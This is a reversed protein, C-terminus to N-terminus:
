FATMCLPKAATVFAREVEEVYSLDTIEALRYDLLSTFKVAGMLMSSFEAIDMDVAVDFSGKSLDDIEGDVLHVVVSGANDPFFSDHLNLKLSLSVGGFNHKVLQELIKRTNLVRYMVGVGSIHCEHYVSRFVHDSDNDFEGLLFHFDDDPTNIVVRNVQDLQARLFSLMEGLADPSEYILQDVIMDNNLWNRSCGTDFRYTLFGELRDDREYGILRVNPQYEFLRLWTLDPEEIMGTHRDAFRSYCQSIALVDNTDLYRVHSKPGGPLAIPRLRYQHMKAGLGFGMQRYFDPRFPWLIAMSAGMAYYHNLYSAMLEKAVHEKKRTLKVAVAGVGGTPVKVGHVNMNFSHLRMAGILESDAFAGYLTIRRDKLAHGLREVARHRDDEGVLGMGPYAEAQIRMFAGLHRKTLKKITYM